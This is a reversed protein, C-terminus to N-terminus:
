DSVRGEADGMKRLHEEEVAEWAVYAKTKSSCPNGIAAMTNDSAVEVHCPGCVERGQVWEELDEDDRCEGIGGFDVVAVGGQCETWPGHQEM